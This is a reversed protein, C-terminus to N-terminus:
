ARLVYGMGRMTHLMRPEFDRDIKERLRHVLVDVVNSGPDFSYDYVHSLIMTKSVVTGAHRMLYELLAMEKPRLDLKRGERRVERSLLDMELAGVRLRTPEAQSSARRVLAQVRALLEPFAFPKVLYDDGGAQLGRVRDDV